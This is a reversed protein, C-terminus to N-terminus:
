EKAIDLELYFNWFDSDENWAGKGLLNSEHGYVYLTAIGTNAGSRMIDGVFINSNQFHFMVDFGEGSWNFFLHFLKGNFNVSVNAVQATLKYFEGPKLV